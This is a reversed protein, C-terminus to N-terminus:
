RDISWIRSVVIMRSDKFGYKKMIIAIKTKYYGHPKGAKLTMMIKAIIYTGLLGGVTLIAPIAVWIGFLLGVVIGIILSVGASFAGAIGLEEWSCGMFVSPTENLRDPIFNSM